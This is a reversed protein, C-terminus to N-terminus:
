RLASAVMAEASAVAARSAAAEEQATRLRREFLAIEGEPVAGTGTLPQRRHLEEEVEAIRADATAVRARAMEVEAEAQMRDADARAVRLKVDDDIFRAVVQGAEVRQGELVLVEKIVGDTLAAISTAFPLPEIWGPAQVVPGAAETTTGSEGGGEGASAADGGPKAVVPVVRVDVAPILATRAAYALLLGGTALVAAPLIVRTAWRFPPRPVSAVGTEGEAGGARALSALSPKAVEM